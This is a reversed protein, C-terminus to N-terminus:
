KYSLKERGSKGVKQWFRLGFSLQCFNFLTVSNEAVGNLKSDPARLNEYAITLFPQKM